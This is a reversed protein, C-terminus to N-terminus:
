RKGGFYSRACGEAVLLLNLNTSTGDNDIFLVEALWRGYKGTEGKHSKLLVEKQDILARVKDRVRLGEERTAGRVEPTDIGYLRFKMEVSTHFGLDVIATITDGDYVSTVKAKYIYSPNM